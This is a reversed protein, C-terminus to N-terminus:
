RDPSPSGKSRHKKKKRRKEPPPSLSDSSIPSEGGGHVEFTPHYNSVKEILLM